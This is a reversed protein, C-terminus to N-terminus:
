LGTKHSCGQKGLEGPHLRFERHANAAQQCEDLFAADSVSEWKEGMPQAPDDLSM